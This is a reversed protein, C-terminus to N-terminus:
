AKANNSPRDFTRIASTCKCSLIKKQCKATYNIDSMGAIVLRADTSTKKVDHRDLGVGGLGVMMAGKLAGAVDANM